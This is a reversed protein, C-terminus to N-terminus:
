PTASDSNPSTAPESSPPMQTGDPAVIHTQPLAKRLAELSEASVKFAGTLDLFSLEKLTKLGNVNELNACGSLDLKRLDAIEALADVQTIRPCGTITLSFLSCNRLGDISQLGECDVLSLDFGEFKQLFDVNRLAPCFAIRLETISHPGKLAELGELNPCDEITIRTLAPMGLLATINRLREASIRLYLLEPLNALGDTNELAPCAWIQLERLRPFEQLGHLTRLDACDFLGLEVLPLGKLSRLDGCGYAGLHTPKLRHLLGIYRPFDVGTPVDLRRMPERWLRWALMWEGQRLQDWPDDSTGWSFSAAEAERIAARYDYTRWGIWAMFAAGFALL